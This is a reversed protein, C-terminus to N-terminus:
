LYVYRRKRRQLHQEPTLETGDPNVDAIDQDELLPTVVLTGDVGHISLPIRCVPNEEPTLENCSVSNYLRQVRSVMTKPLVASQMPDMIRWLLANGLVLAMARSYKKAINPVVHTLIWSETVNSEMKVQYTIAEGKCLAAAVKADPYAINGEVYRDQMRGCKWRFCYDVEDKSCGCMRAHTAAFKRMSHTGLKKDDCANMEASMVEKFSPDGLVRCMMDSARNKIVSADNMGNYSFFFESFADWGEGLAYELYSGLGLLVCYFPNGAGFLIQDHVSFCYCYCCCVTNTIM